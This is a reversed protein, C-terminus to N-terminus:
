LFVYIFLLPGSNLTECNHYCYALSSKILHQSFLLNTTSVNLYSVSLYFLWKLVINM